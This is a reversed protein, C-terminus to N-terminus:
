IRFDGLEDLVGPDFAPGHFLLHVQVPISVAALVGGHELRHSLLEGQKEVIGDYVVEVDMQLSDVIASIIVQDTERVGLRHVAVEVLRPLHVVPRLVAM